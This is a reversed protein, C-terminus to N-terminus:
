SPKSREGVLSYSQTSSALYVYICTTHDRACFSAHLIHSFDVLNSFEEWSFLVLCKLNNQTTFVLNKGRPIFVAYDSFSSMKFQIVFFDSWSIGLFVFCCLLVRGFCDNKLTFNVVEYM